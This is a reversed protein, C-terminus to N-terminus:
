AGTGGHGACRQMTLVNCQPIMRLMVAAKAGVNQARAHCAQHLAVEGDLPALGEALGEDRAIGIVYESIDSTHRALRAVAEDEPLHLPWLTKMM